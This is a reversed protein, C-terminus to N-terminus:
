PSDHFSKLLLRRDLPIRELVRVILGAAQGDGYPNRLGRLSRRFRPSLARRVAAVIATTTCPCDVVNRARLRGEQRSGINVVPLRFSPSEFMGSSSNGVMASARSMVTFYRQAGLNEVFRSGPHTACYRELRARIEANGPDANPATILCPIGCQDLAKVVAEVQATEDGPERTVPHFTVLLFRKPIEMEVPKFTKLRDLAPAGSVTIRWPEEGMRRLRAASDRTTVFHLHAFKSLAHRFSDDIAGVTVDGGHLHAIPINYPVAALAGAFMEFRDGLAVLLDPRWSRFLRGMGAVTQSMSEAMDGRLGRVRRFIPFGANRIEDITRGFRRELHSGSVILRVKLLRSKAMERLVPEYIGFDARSTTLVAIERM